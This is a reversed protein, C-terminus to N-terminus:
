TGGKPGQQEATKPEWQFKYKERLQLRTIYVIQHTHGVLHSISDFIAGLVTTETAQIRRPEILKAPLLGAIARDAKHVVETLRAM